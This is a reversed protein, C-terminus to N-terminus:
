TSNGERVRRRLTPAALPTKSCRLLLPQAMSEMAGSHRMFSAQRRAPNFSNSSPLGMAQQIVLFREPLLRLGAIRQADAELQQKVGAAVDHDGELFM